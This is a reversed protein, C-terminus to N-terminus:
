KQQNQSRCCQSTNRNQYGEARDLNVDTTVRYIRTFYVIERETSYCRTNRHLSICQNVYNRTLLASTLMIWSQLGNQLNYNVKMLM